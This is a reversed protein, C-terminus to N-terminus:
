RFITVILSMYFLMSPTKLVKTELLSLVYNALSRTRSETRVCANIFLVQEM